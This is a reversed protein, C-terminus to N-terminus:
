DQGPLNMREVALNQRQYGILDKVVEGSIILGAVSPVFAMSGPISHRVTCTRTTGKPCVCNNSCSNSEDQIPQLPEEKSYVVKLSTVGRKRLEQRMVRALPCVTTAFIDAVELRTPDMKNGAGMCSIIPIDAQRANVILDLKATVTDIADIIYDIKQGETHHYTMLDIWTLAQEAPIPTAKAPKKPTESEAAVYFKQFIAVDAQPNIELIRNRMVEVKPQGVTKRTAHLQRNINTLCIADDDVLLFKGVGSRALGEVAFTGVGGIGFVAVRSNKLKELADRGILLETRSFAHLM